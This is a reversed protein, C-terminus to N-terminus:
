IEDQEKRFRLKVENINEIRYLNSTIITSDHKEKLIVKYTFTQEPQDPDREKKPTESEELKPIVPKIRKNNIEILEYASCSEKLKEEIREQLTNDYKVELSLEGKLEARKGFYSFKLLFASSCFGVTGLLAVLFGYVGCGIGVALSAFVFAINRPNRLTTRFRIIALAGLMGLGRAISDGIAQMVTAAVISLLVIAQMLNKSQDVKDTTFQYTFVILSSLTFALVISIIIVEYGTNVSNSKDLLLDFM